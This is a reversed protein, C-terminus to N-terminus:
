APMDFEEVPARNMDPITGPIRSPTACIITTLDKALFFFKGCLLLTGILVAIFCVNTDIGASSVGIMRIPPITEPNNVGVSDAANAQMYAKSTPM